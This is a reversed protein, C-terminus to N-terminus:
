RAAIVIALDDYSRIGLCEPGTKGTGQAAWGEDMVVPEQVVVQAPCV